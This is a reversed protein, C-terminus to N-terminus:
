WWSWFEVRLYRTLRRTVLDILRRRDCLIKANGTMEPKLRLSSNDLLTSVTVTREIQGEKPVAVTPAISVVSGKFSIDPLARARLFVDQGLKVDSIEKEPVAIEAMVSSLANVKAILDGKKVQRGIMEKLKPTTIVGAIPSSVHLSRLEEVMYSRNATLRTIEAGMAEIEEPRSGAQLVQLRGQADELEKQRVSVQEEAEELKDKSLLGEQYLSRLRDLQSRVYSLRDGAKDVATNAVRVEEVRPGAQAMRLRAEKEEIEADLMRLKAKLDRDSLLVIPDGARVATGEDVEVDQVIGEVSSRVEANKVPLVTFEGSVRLQMHVFFLAAAAVSLLALMVLRGIWRRRQPPNEPAARLGHMTNRVPRSLVAGILGAFALFGWGQYNRVLARGMYFAVIGFLWSSYTAALIGYILFIRRERRSPADTRAADVGLLRRVRDRLFAFAKKRLNPIRLGDSLLYYGDLKILPNLNFLTRVGSTVMVVLAMFSLATGPEVVRWVLTASAWVLLESYAGALTVWLRKSREPFLWADSVNCYFAPQFYLLLFGLDHVSGGFHKCTLGHSFEHITIVLLVTLYAWLLTQPRLVLSFDRAIASGNAAATFAALLILAASFILFAPSFVFRLRVALAGLLHDPDFAKLRLYLLSGGIRGRVPPAHPTEPGETELLGLLVLRKQFQELNERSFPSGFREQVREQLRELSTEGDFQQAILYELERFRFFRGSAPDKLVFSTTGDSCQRSVVLDKRLRQFPRSM